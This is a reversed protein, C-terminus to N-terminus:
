YCKVPLWGEKIAHELTDKILRDISAIANTDPGEIPMVTDLGKFSEVTIGTDFFPQFIRYVRFAAESVKEKVEPRWGTDAFEGYLCRARLASKAEYERQARDVDVCTDASSFDDAKTTLLEEPPNSAMERLIENCMPDRMKIRFNGGAVMYRRM